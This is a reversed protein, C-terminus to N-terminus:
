KDQQQADQIRKELYDYQYELEDIGKYQRSLEYSIFTGAFMGFLMVTVITWCIASCGHLPQHQLGRLMVPERPEPNRKM